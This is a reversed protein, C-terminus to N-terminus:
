RRKKIVYIVVGAIIAIIVILPLWNKINSLDTWETKESATSEEEQDVNFHGLEFNQTQFEKQLNDIIIKKSQKLAEQDAEKKGVGFLGPNGLAELAKDFEAKIQKDMEPDKEAIVPSLAQYTAHGKALLRKSTEYDEFNKDVGSLRRDINLALIKQMNEILEEKEEKELNEKILKSPESGMHQDIEEKVTDYIKETETFNPPNKDLQVVMKKYAEAIKEENPDGYSYANATNHLSFFTLLTLTMIAIIKKMIIFEEKGM